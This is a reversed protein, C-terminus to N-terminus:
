GFTVQYTSTNNSTLQEGPVPQVTVEVTVEQGPPPDVELTMSATETGGAIIRPITTEASIPEPGGTVEVVVIVDSEDSDGQNQVQADIEYPGSGSVTV